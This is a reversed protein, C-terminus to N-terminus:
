VMCICGHPFMRRTICGRMCPWVLLSSSGWATAPSNCCFNKCRSKAVPVALPAPPAVCCCLVVGAALGGRPCRLAFVITLIGAGDVGQMGSPDVLMIPSNHAYEVGQMGSPDVLMIPSNHAYKYVNAAIRESENRDAVGRPDETVFRGASADYWRARYYFLGSDTDSERGTFTFLPAHSPDSQGTIRGFAAYTLHNVVSTADAQDDYDVLERITGLHDTLLWLVNGSSDEDAMVNDVDPGHVYRRAVNGSGDFVLVIDHLGEKTMPDYVFHWQADITGDGNADLLKAIRRDHVDYVYEVEKSTVGSADKFTVKTLRNRHDWVYEVTEKTSITTRKTRNGEADYEYDYIGDSLLQNNAGTSYGINTRNGTLDYSYSEDDQFAHVAETLQAADDYAYDSNGDVTTHRDIRRDADFRYSHNALATQDKTHEMGVLRAYDDYAYQTSAVLQSGGLDAYRQITCYGGAVQYAFEIRKEAVSHGGGAQQDLRSTRGLADYSYGNLFDDTNNVQAALSTREVLRNYEASLVVRPVGPTGNNDVEIMGGNWGYLYAYSSHIDGATAVRGDPDYAFQLTNVVIGGEKWREEVPRGADDYDFEIERGNRDTRISLMGADNYGFLRDYNLANTEKVVHGLADHHWTTTNNEADTMSTRNNAADYSFLTEATLPDTQKVVRSLSDYQFTLEAMLEAPQRKVVNDVEDYWTDDALAAGVLGTQQDVAYQLMRYVRGRNDYKEEWRAVLKGAATTDHRDVQVVRDLNDYFRKEYFDEEGDTAIQRNRWDHVFGTVRTTQGDVHHVQETLNGDGGAQGGDYQNATVLVMNNNPDAGGGTPDSESAGSDDTGEYRATVQARVDLVDFRITGGPSVSRNRRKASDYGFDTQDYNVGPAGEGSPPITHYVRTSGLLCCHIYQHTTWRVYSSQPFDDTPELKGVTGARVAQIQELVNGNRDSRESCIAPAGPDVPWSVCCAAGGSTRTWNRRQRRNRDAIM